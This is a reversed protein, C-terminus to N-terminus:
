PRSTKSSTASTRIKRKALRRKSLSRSRRSRSFTAFRRSPCTWRAARDRREDARTGVGARARAFHSGTQQDDRDHPRPHPDHAGSRCDRAHHSPSDVVDRLDLVQLRAAVRIEGRGEDPRHQGRSHPRSVPPRSEHVEECDLRRSAPESRDIRAQGAGDRARRAVISQLSRKIEVPTLSDRSRDTQAQTKPRASTRRSIRRRSRSSASRKGLKETYKEIEREAARMDKHVARIADILRQRAREKLNLQDIEQAIELRTRAVKRAPALTKQDAQRADSAARRAAEGLRETRGQLAQQDERHRRADM